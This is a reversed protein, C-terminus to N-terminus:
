PNSIDKKTPYRADVRDYFLNIDYGAFRNDHESRFKAARQNLGKMRNLEYLMTPERSGTDGANELADLCRNMKGDAFDAAPLEHLYQYIINWCNFYTGALALRAKLYDAKPEVGSAEVEQEVQIRRAELVEILNTLWPGADQEALKCLYNPRFGDDNLNAKLIDGVQSVDFKLLAYGAATHVDSNNGGWVRGGAKLEETTLPAVPNTLGVPDALLQELTPLLSAIKGNGIADAVGARVKPSPDTARERLARESFEGPFGPLLLVAQLRVEASADRLWLPLSNSVVPFDTGAFAAIAATRRPITAGNGAIQALLDAFPAIQASNNPGTQFCNLAALAVEENANTVSASLALLVAERKFDKTHSWERGGGQSMADLQHIAYLQNTPNASHLLLELEQWHADKISLGELPRADLTRMAGEDEKGTHSSRIQRFEDERETKVAFILYCQGTELDYHQPEYMFGRGKPNSAYHLFELSNSPPNGKLVSILELKSARTEFGPLSQFAANTVVASSVVRAKCVLDANSAMKDLGDPPGVAYARLVLPTLLVFGMVWGIKTNM